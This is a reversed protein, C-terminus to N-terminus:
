PAEQLSAPPASKPTKRATKSGDQPGGTGDQLGKPRNPPMDSVMELSRASDQPMKSAMRSCRSGEQLSRPRFLVGQWRAFAGLFGKPPSPSPVGGWLSSPKQFLISPYRQGGAGLPSTPNGRDWAVLCLCQSHITPSSDPCISLPNDPVTM